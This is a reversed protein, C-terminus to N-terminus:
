AGSVEIAEAHEEAIREIAEAHRGNESWNRRWRLPGLTRIHETMEDV